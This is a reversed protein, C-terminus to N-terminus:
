LWQFTILVGIFLLGSSKNSMTTFSYIIRVHKSLLEFSLLFGYEHFVLKIHFDENKMNRCTKRKNINKNQRSLNPCDVYEIRWKNFIFKLLNYFGKDGNSFYQLQYVISYNLINMICYGIIKSVRSGRGSEEKDEYDRSMKRM